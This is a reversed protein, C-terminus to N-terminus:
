PLKLQNLTQKLKFYLDLDRIFHLPLQKSSDTFVPLTLDNLDVSRNSEESSVNVNTCVGSNSNQSIISTSDNCAISSNANVSSTSPIVKAGAGSSTSALQLDATSVRVITNGSDASPQTNPGVSAVKNQLEGLTAQMKSIEDANRKVQQVDGSIAKLKNDVCERTRAVATEVKDTVSIYVDDITTSLKSIESETEKQISDIKTSVAVIESTLKTDFDERIKHHVAEFKATLSSALRYNEEKLESRLSEAAATLKASEEATQKRFEEQAATQKRFEEQLAATQKRSEEQGAAIQKKFKDQVAANQRKCEETTQRASEKIGHMVNSLLEQLQDRSISDSQVNSAATTPNEQSTDALNINSEGVESDRVDSSMVGSEQNFNTSSDDCVSAARDVSQSRSRLKRSSM